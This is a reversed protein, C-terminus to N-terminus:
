TQLTLHTVWRFQTSGPPHCAFLTATKDPTQDIIELAEPTVIESSSVVYTYTTGDVVFLVPDGVALKDLNRFPRLHSVRHGALVVNGVQGPMASGPWHGPGRDLTSLTVGEYFSVDLDIKPIQVSGLLHEPEITNEAPPAEPVPLTPAAATTVPAATITANSTSTSPVIATSTAPATVSAATTVSAITAESSANTSAVLVPADATVARDRGGCASAVLLAAAAIGIVRRM